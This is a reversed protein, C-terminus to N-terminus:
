SMCLSIHATLQVLLGVGINVTTAEWPNTVVDIATIVQSSANQALLVEDSTDIGVDPALNIIGLPLRLGVDGVGRGIDLILLTTQSIDETAAITIVVIFVTM